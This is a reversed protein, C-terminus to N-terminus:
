KTRLKDRARKLFELDRKQLPEMGPEKVSNAEITKIATDIGDFWEVEFGRENEWEEYNPMGKEGVVKAIFGESTDLMNWVPIETTMKGLEDTIESDCGAEELVERRASDKVDEGEEIGGGPIKYYGHKKANIIAVKGDEDLLVTRTAYKERLKEHSEGAVNAGVNFESM